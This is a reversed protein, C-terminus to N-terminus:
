PAHLFVWVETSKHGGGRRLETPFSPIFSPLNHHHSNTAENELFRCGSINSLKKTGTWIKMAVTLRCEGGRPGRVGLFFPKFLRGKLSHNNTIYSWSKGNGHGLFFNTGVFEVLTFASFGGVLGGLIKRRQFTTPAQSSQGTVARNTHRHKPTCIKPRGRWTRM